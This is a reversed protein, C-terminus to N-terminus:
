PEPDCDDCQTSGFIPKPYPDMLAPCLAYLPACEPSTSNLVTELEALDSASSECHIARYANAELRYRTDRCALYERLSVDDCPLSPNSCDYTQAALMQLCAPQQSACNTPVSRRLATAACIGERVGEPPHLRREGLMECLTQSEAESLASLPRDLDGLKERDISPFGGDGSAADPDANADVAGADTSGESGSADSDSGPGSADELAADAPAKNKGGDGCAILCLAMTSTLWSTKPM